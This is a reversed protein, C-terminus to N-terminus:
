DDGFCVVFCDVVHGFFEDAVDVFEYFAHCDSNFVCGFGVADGDDLLVYAGCSM